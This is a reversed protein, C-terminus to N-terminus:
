RRDGERALRRRTLGVSEIFFGMDRRTGYLGDCGNSDMTTRRGAEAEARRDRTGDLRDIISGVGGWGGRAGVRSAGVGVRGVPRVGAGRACVSREAGQADIEGAGGDIGRVVRACRRRVGGRTPGRDGGHRTSVVVDTSKRGRRAVRSPVRELCGRDRKRSLSAATLCKAM